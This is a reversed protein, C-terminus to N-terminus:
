FMIRNRKSETPGIDRVSVWLRVIDLHFGRAAAGQLCLISHLSRDCDGTLPALALCVECLADINLLPAQRRLDHGREPLDRPLQSLVLSCELRLLSHTRLERLGVALVRLHKSPGKTVPRNVLPIRARLVDVRYLVSHLSILESQLACDINISNM